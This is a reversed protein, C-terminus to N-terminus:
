CVNAAVRRLNDIDLSLRFNDSADLLQKKVAGFDDVFDMWNRTDLITGGNVSATSGGTGSATGIATLNDIYFM